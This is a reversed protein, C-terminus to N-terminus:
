IGNYLLKTASYVGGPFFYPEKGTMDFGDRSFM